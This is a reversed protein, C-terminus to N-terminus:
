RDTLTASDIDDNTQAHQRGWGAITTYNGVVSMM